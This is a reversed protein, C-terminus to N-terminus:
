GLTRREQSKQDMIEKAWKRNFHYFCMGHTAPKTPFSITSIKKNKLHTISKASHNPEWMVKGMCAKKNDLVEKCKM